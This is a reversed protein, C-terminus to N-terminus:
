YYPIAYSKSFIKQYVAKFESCLQFQIALNKNVTGRIQSDWWLNEDITVGQFKAEQAKKIKQGKVKM